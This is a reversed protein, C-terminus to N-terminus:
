VSMHGLVNLRAWITLRCIARLFMARQRQTDWDKRLLREIVKSGSVQKLGIAPDREVTLRDLSRRERELQDSQRDSM